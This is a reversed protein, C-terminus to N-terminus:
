PKNPRPLIRRNKILLKFLSSGGPLGRLAADIKLWKENLDDLIHGHYSPWHGTREVSTPRVLIRKILLPRRLRKSARL